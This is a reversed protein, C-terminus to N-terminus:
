RMTKSFGSATGISTLRAYTIAVRGLLVHHAPSFNPQPPPSSMTVDNPDSCTTSPPSHLLNILIFERENLQIIIQSDNSAKWGKDECVEGILSKLHDLKFTLRFNIRGYLPAHNIVLYCVQQLPSRHM